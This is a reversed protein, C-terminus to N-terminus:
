ANHFQMEAIILEISVVVDIEIGRNLDSISNRVVSNLFIPWFLGDNHKHKNEKYLGSRVLNNHGNLPNNYWKEKAATISYKFLVLKLWPSM